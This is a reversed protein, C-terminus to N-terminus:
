ALLHLREISEENNISKNQLFRLGLEGSMSVWNLHSDIGTQALDRSSRVCLHLGQGELDQEM